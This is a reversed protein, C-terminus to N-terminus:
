LDQQVPIRKYQWELEQMEKSRRLMMWSGRMKKQLADREASVLMKCYRWEAPLRWCLFNAGSIIRIGRFEELGVSARNWGGWASPLGSITEEAWCHAHPKPPISCSAETKRPKNDCIKQRWLWSLGSIVTIVLFLGSWLLTWLWLTFSHTLPENLHIAVYLLQM